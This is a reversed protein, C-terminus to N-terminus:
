ISSLLALGGSAAFESLVLGATRSHRQASLFHERADIRLRDNPDLSRGPIMSLSNAKRRHPGGKVAEIRMTTNDAEQEFHSLLPRQRPREAHNTMATCVTAGHRRLNRRSVQSPKPPLNGNTNLSKRPARASPKGPKRRRRKLRKLTSM